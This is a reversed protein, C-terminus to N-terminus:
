ESVEVPKRRIPCPCEGDIVDFIYDNINMSQNAEATVTSYRYEFTVEIEGNNNKILGIFPLDAEVQSDLPLATLNYETGRYIITSDVVTPPTDEIESATPSLTIKM